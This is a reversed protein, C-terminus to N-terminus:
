AFNQVPLDAPRVECRILGRGPQAGCELPAQSQVDLTCIVCELPYMPRLDASIHTGVPVKRM